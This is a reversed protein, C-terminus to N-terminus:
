RGRGFGPVWRRWWPEGEGLSFEQRYKRLFRAIVAPRTAPMDIGPLDGHYQEEGRSHLWGNDAATDRAATGPWPYYPRLDVFDPRLRRLLRGADDLSTESEYPSGLYLVARSRIGAARLHDFAAVLQDQTVDMHFIENRIFDSASVVEVDAVRCGAEALQPLLEADIANARLHCRLPLDCASQYASLFAALWRRDLAFAHDLVRVTTAGAYKERLAAIEELINGPSRRRVWTGRGDYLRATAPLLCYGCGQSCGRGVAVELEGTQRVWTAYDFLDREPFPLSDLDEVLAPMEPRSLRSEDRWWVGQVIQRVAPDKLREFYAVLSADPEGIAVATVGPLSLCAPPDVTAYSGGAVVPLFEKDHVYQLTRRATDACVASISAYILQPLGRALASKIPALDAQAVGALSVEHGQRRLLALLVGLQPDFRPAPRGRLAPTFQVALIRM